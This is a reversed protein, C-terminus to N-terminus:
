VERLEDKEISYLYTNVNKDTKSEIYQKYGKLQKKYADDEINKLKYDVIILEKDNEIM